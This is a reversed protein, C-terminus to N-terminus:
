VVIIIDVPSEHLITGYMRRFEYILCNMVVYVPLRVMCGMEAIVTVSFM